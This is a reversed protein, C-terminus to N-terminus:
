YEEDDRSYSTRLNKSGGREKKVKLPQSKKNIKKIANENQTDSLWSQLKKNDPVMTTRWTEDTCWTVTGIASSVIRKKLKDIIENRTTRIGANPFFCTGVTYQSQDWFMKVVVPPNSVAWYDESQRNRDCFCVNMPIQLSSEIIRRICHAYNNELLKAQPTCINFRPCKNCQAGDPGLISCLGGLTKIIDLRHVIENWDFDCFRRWVKEEFTNAFHKVAHQRLKALNKFLSVELPKPATRHSSNGPPVEFVLLGMPEKNTNSM